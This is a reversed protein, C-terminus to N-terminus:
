LGPLRGIRCCDRDDARRMSTRGAQGREERAGPGARGRARHKSPARASGVNDTSRRAPRRPLDERHHHSTRGQVSRGRRGPGGACGQGARGHGVWQEFRHGPGRDQITRRDLPEHDLDRPREAPLGVHHAEGQGRKEGAAVEEELVHRADPLCGEGGGERADGAAAERADLERGVEQRRVDDADRDEIRALAAELETRARQERVDDEGVLDVPRRRLRLRGQELRHALPADRDVTLRAAQGIREERRRWASDSRPM